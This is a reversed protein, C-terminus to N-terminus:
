KARGTWSPEGAQELTRTKNIATNTPRLFDDRGIGVGQCWETHENNRKFAGIIRKKYARSKLGGVRHPWLWCSMISCMTTGLSSGACDLCFKRICASASAIRM